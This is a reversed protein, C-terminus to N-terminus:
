EQIKCRGNVINWEDKEKDYAFRFDPIYGKTGGCDLFYNAKRFHLGYKFFIGKKVELTLSGFNIDITDKSIQQYNIRYLRLSKGHKYAYDFIEDSSYFGYVSNKFNNKIRETQENPEIFKIGSSLLLDFRSNLAKIYLSDLILSDIEQAIIVKPFIVLFLLLIIILRNM